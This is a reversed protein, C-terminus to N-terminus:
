WGSQYVLTALITGMIAFIVATKWINRNLRKAYAAGIITFIVVSIMHSTYVANHYDPMLYLPLLLPIVMVSDLFIIGLAYGIDSKLPRSGCDEVQKSKSILDIVIDMDDEDLSDVITDELYSKADARASADGEHLRKIVDNRQIRGIVMGYMVTVGDIIGWVVNVLFAVITVAVISLMSAEMEVLLGISVVVMWNAYFLEGLREGVPIYQLLDSIKSM